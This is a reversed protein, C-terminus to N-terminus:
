RGALISQWADLISSRERETTYTERIFASAVAALKTTDEHVLREVTAAFERVDGFDIPFAYPPRLFERGGGGHYGVVVCGCAMAEAAPLGFGEPHGFSLYFRARRMAEATEAESLNDLPTPELAVGRARLLHIVQRADAANKRPMYCAGSREGSGPHFRDPDIAYYIRHLAIDPFAHRIYAANDESVVLTALADEYAYTGTYTEPYLEFTNYANQNLIVKPIGPLIRPIRQGFLEPIAVIDEADIPAQRLYAIPTDHEFWTCRFDPKHHLVMAPIGGANLVDVQRYIKRIGGSPPEFDPCLFYIV